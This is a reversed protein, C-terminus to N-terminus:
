WTKVRIKYGLGELWNVVEALGASKKERHQAFFIDFLKDETIGEIPINFPKLPLKLNLSGDANRPEVVYLNKM